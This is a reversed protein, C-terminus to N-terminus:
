RTVPDGALGAFGDRWSPYRPAWGLHKRAFHNDAGRAWGQRGADAPPPPLAGVAACFAPVWERGPAPEDDCVNVACDAPWTLALVAATAADDAHVFSVVDDKAALRGARAMDAVLGDPAYWTGPGYFEGYRLVIWEPMEQVASELAAAGAVRTGREGPAALDLPATEDAPEDGAEYIWAISQAVMRRVGAALSADVLNRTGQRRLAANAAFDGTALDTLQHMVIDPAAERVAAALSAPDLADAVVPEAGSARLAAARDPRRTLATVEHGEEVLLPVMRRGIVGTAGALFIRM